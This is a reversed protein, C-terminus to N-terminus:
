MAYAQKYQMVKHIYNQTEAPLLRFKENLDSETRIGLRDVRGPGANYAALAIEVQGDYKRLLNALYKTGGHINQVPDFPDTVGLGRGTNDMLQMLGKAGAHSVADPNFASEQRIVAKILAPEVGYQRSAQDILNDYSTAAAAESTYQHPVYSRNLPSLFNGTATAESMPSQAATGTQMFMQLLEAFNENARDTTEHESSLLPTRELLQLQILQTMTRPDITNM